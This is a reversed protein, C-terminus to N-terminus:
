IDGLFEDIFNQVSEDMTPPTKPEERTQGDPNIYDADGGSGKSGYDAYLSDTDNQSEGFIDLLDTNADAELMSMDDDSGELFPNDSSLGNDDNLDDMVSEKTMKDKLEGLARGLAQVGATVAKIIETAWKQAIDSVKRCLKKITSVAQPGYKDAKAKIWDKVRKFFPKVKGDYIKSVREALKDAGKEVRDMAVAVPVLMTLKELEDVSLKSIKDDVEDIDDDSIEKNADAKAMVKECETIAEECSKEVKDVDVIEVKKSRAFPNFKIKSKLQALKEKIALKNLMVLVKMKMEHFWERITEWINEIAALVKEKFNGDAAEFLYSLDDADGSENMVKLSAQKINMAYENTFSECITDNRRSAIDYKDNISDLTSEINFFLEM